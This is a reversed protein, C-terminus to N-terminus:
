INNQNKNKFNEKYEVKIFFATKFNSTCEMEKM